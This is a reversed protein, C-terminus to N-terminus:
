ILNIMNLFLHLLIESYKLEITELPKLRLLLNECVLSICIAYLGIQLDILSRIVYLVLQRL